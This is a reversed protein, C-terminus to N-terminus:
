LSRMLTEFNCVDCIGEDKWVYRVAKNGNGNGNTSSADGPADALVVCAGLQTLVGQQLAAESPRLVAWEKLSVSCHVCDAAILSFPGTPDCALKCANRTM